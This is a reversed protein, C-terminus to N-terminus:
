PKGFTGDDLKELLKIETGEAEVYKKGDRLFVHKTPVKVGGVEKYDKQFFEQKVEQGGLEQAKVTQVSKVLLGTEKDFYLSVDRHGQHSV